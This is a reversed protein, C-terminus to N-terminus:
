NIVEFFAEAYKSWNSYLDFNSIGMDILQNAVNFGIQGNELMIIVFPNDIEILQEPSICIVGPVIEKGWNNSNNDCVKKVNYYQQIKFVNQRFCLGTGWPIVEKIQKLKNIRQPPINVNTSKHNDREGDLRHIIKLADSEETSETFVEVILSREGINPEVFCDMIDTYEAKNTVSKYDFGLAKAYDRILAPSKNGNHGSAAVFSEQSGSLVTTMHNYNMFETGCGNNIVMLRLNNGVHRNGIANM